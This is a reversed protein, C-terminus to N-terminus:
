HKTMNVFNNAGMHMFVSAGEVQEFAIHEYPFRM